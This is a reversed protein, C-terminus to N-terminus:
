MGTVKVSYLNIISHRLNPNTTGKIKLFSDRLTGTVKEDSEPRFRALSAPCDM